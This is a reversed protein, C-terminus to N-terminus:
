TAGQRLLRCLGQVFAQALPRRFDEAARFGAADGPALAVAQPLWKGLHAQALVLVTRQANFRRVQWGTM